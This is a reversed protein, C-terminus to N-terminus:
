DEDDIEFVTLSVTSTPETGGGLAPTISATVPNVVLGVEWYYGDNSGFKAFIRTGDGTATSDVALVSWHDHALERRYFTVVQSAAHAVGLTVTASYLDVAPAPRKATDVTTGTPVV